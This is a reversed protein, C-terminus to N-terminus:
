ARDRGEYVGVVVLLDEPAVPKVLHHDFGARSAAETDSVQGWGTLAILVIPAVPDARLRRALEYGNMRPMGIDLIALDPSHARIAHLAEIGDHVVHVEHGVSELLVSLSWAFDVNDDAVVIRLARGLQRPAEPELVASPESAGEPRPLRVTFTTGHGVGESHLGIQGGHLEVIQRALTLGIGLGANGRELSKDAQEFLEFVRQQVERAIGIGTDQVDIDIADPLVRMTLRVHGGAPTYRAANGLLNSLAQLLRASDGLIVPHETPIDAAFCLRREAFIPEALEIAAHLVRVVDINEIQLSLKGTTIRSIDLLDDILRVIHHLQRELIAVAKERTQANGEALRLMTAANAMPALPNRLEHALTALFEDKRRDALQLRAEAQRRELTEHELEGTTKRVEDLMGNFADVLVAIDRNRAPPARLNWDRRAMVRRAVESIRALPETVVRQLRGFVFGALLLSVAGVAALIAVYGLAREGIDHEARLFVAGLREGNREVPYVVELTSLSFHGSGSRGGPDTAPLPQGPDARYEAFAPADNRYIAAARIRHRSELLALKENAAKPDDVVLAAATARAILDAQAQLDEVWARRYTNLEYALLAGATLLLAVFTTAMSALTLQGRLTPM